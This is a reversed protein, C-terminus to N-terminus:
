CASISQMVLVVQKFREAEQVVNDFGEFKTPNKPASIPRPRSDSYLQLISARGTKEM